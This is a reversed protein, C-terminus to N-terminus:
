QPVAAEIIVQNRFRGPTLVRMSVIKLGADRLTNEIQDQYTVNGFDITLGARLVPKVVWEMVTGVIGRRELTQTLYVRGDANRLMSMCRQVAGVQNPIIMLSGSFYIADFPETSQYDHISACVLSIHDELGAAKVSAEAATVYAADYDVGVFTLRKSVILDRNNILSTATGIGVDLVRAGVPLESLVARYWRTTMQVIVRDYIYSRLAGWAARPSRISVSM